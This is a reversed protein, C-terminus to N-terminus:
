MRGGIDIYKRFFITKNRAIMTLYTKFKYINRVNM